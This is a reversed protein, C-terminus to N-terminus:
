ANSTARARQDLALIAAMTADPASFHPSHGVGALDIRTAGPIDRVCGAAHVHNYVVGDKEGTVIVVPLRLAGYRGSLQAVHGLCNVVDEANARFHSPRLVLPLRTRSVYNPPVPCPAFVGRLSSTMVMLGAPTVILGRFFPGLIRRAALRYYLSVGGSWPHSVPALLALARVFEPMNLAMALGVPGGLSHVVVLPRRVGMAILAEHIVAAQAEPSSPDAARARESWGHGPRDVSFVQFGATVLAPALAEALDAFNGSAGHILVAAGRPADNPGFRVIHMAGRSTPTLPAVAPYRRSVFVSHIATFAALAFLSALALGLVLAM